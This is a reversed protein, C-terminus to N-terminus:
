QRPVITKYEALFVGALTFLSGAVIPLTIKDGLLIIALIASMIPYLYSFLAAESLEISRLGLNNLIYALTGSLLAMYLIGFFFLPSGTLFTNIIQPLPHLMLSIPIMTLFGTLFSINALKVADYGKRLLEKTLLGAISGTIVSALILINGFLRGDKQQMEIPEILIVLSGILAVLTGVKERGTIRDKLFFYALGITVLPGLISILSMDLLTTKATGWFLLGLAITSNLISYTTILIWDKPDKVIKFNSFAFMIAAAIASFMFRYLLFIDPALGSNLTIKIVPGAIGWILVVVTLYFYARLRAPNM